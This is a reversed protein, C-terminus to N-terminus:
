PMCGYCRCRSRTSRRGHDLAVEAAAQRVEGKLTEAEVQGFYVYIPPEPWEIPEPVEIVPEEVSAKETDMELPSGLRTSKGLLGGLWFGLIGSAGISLLAVLVYVYLPRQRSNGHESM